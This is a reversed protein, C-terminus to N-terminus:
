RRESRGVILAPNSLHPSQEHEVEPRVSEATQRVGSLVQRRGTVGLNVTHPPGSCVHIGTRALWLGHFRVSWRGVVGPQLTCVTVM